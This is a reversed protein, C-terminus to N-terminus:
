ILKAIAVGALLVLIVLRYARTGGAQVAWTRSLLWGLAGVLALLVVAGAIGPLLLGAFVVAITALFVGTRNLRSLRVLVREM